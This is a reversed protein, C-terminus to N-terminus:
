CCDWLAFLLPTNLFYKAEQMMGGLSQFTGALVEASAVLKLSLSLAGAGTRTVYPLVTPVYLSFIRKYLPVTYVKSMEVLGRDAQCLAAYIGAYLTPFLTLFAVAVPAGEANTAVLLILLVALTPTSRFIAMIPTFIKSFVPLMYAIVAFVSALVFSLVFARLVRCLTSLFARWFATSVFLKGVQKVSDSFAPVILENGVAKHAVIWIVCIM